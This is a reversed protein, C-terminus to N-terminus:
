RVSECADISEQLNKLAIQLYFENGSGDVAIKMTEIGVASDVMINRLLSSEAAESAIRLEDALFQIRESPLDFNSRELKAMLYDSNINQCALKDSKADVLPVSTAPANSCSSLLVCIVAIAPVLKLKNM